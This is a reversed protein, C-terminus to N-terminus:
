GVQMVHPTIFIMLETKRDEYKEHRFLQGLLPISGLLWVKQTTKIRQTKILGGIVVTDGDKVTVISNVTRKDTIPARHELYQVWGSIEEIVPNVFMTIEGNGGVHPTVNLQINVEKYEFTVMDGQGGLGRQIRPVPVTTGVSISSEENDMALLRPNSILKSDTKEKLFDLVASYQSASLHGLQWSGAGSPDQNMISYSQPDGNPLLEQWQLVTTLTKDWNIGVENNYSPAMEVLKSEIIIQTPPKDLEAIVRDVERIKEPRDTVVLTSSRRIGQVAVTSAQKRNKGAENFNLFEPHFVQVLSDKSVIQSVVSAVNEADAYKLRYVRTITGGRYVSDVSKVTIIGENEIYECNHTHVVMNMAQRLTVDDLSMTVTGEIADDIVMNLGNVRAITRLANKVPTGTFTFSVKDNWPIRDEEVEQIRNAPQTRTQPTKFAPPEQIAAQETVTPSESLPSDTDMTSSSVDEAVPVQEISPRRMEEQASTVAETDPVLDDGTEAPLENSVPPENSAAEDVFEIGEFPDATPAESPEQAMQMRLEGGKNHPVEVVLSHAKKAISFETSPLFHMEARFGTEQAGTSFLRVTHLNGQRIPTDSLGSSYTAGRFILSASDDTPRLYGVWEFSGDFDFSTLVVNEDFEPSVTLLRGPTVSVDAHSEAVSASMFRENNFGVVMHRTNKLVSLSTGDEYFLDARFVSLNRSVQQISIQFRSESDIAEIRGDLEGANGLFYLSAASETSQSAGIWVLREDFTMVAWCRNGQEGKRISVLTSASGSTVAFLVIVVTVVFRILIRSYKM